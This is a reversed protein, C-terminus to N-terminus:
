SQRTKLHRGVHGVLIQEYDEIWAFHIRLFKDQGRGAGLKIHLPMEILQGTEDRFRRAEDYRRMTDVSESSCEVNRDNLTQVIQEVTVDGCHLEEGIRNLASLAELVRQPLAYRSEGASEFASNLFSLHDGRRAEAIQVAEAVTEPVRLEDTREREVETQQQELSRQAGEYLSRYRDREALADERYRREREVLRQLSKVQESSPRSAADQRLARLEAERIQDRVLHYAVAASNPVVMQGAQGVIEKLVEPLRRTLDSRLWFPHRGAPDAKSFGPQYIRVAGGYCSMKPEVLESLVRSAEADFRYVDAIGALRAQLADPDAITRRRADTSVAILPVERDARTLEGRVLQAVDTRKIRRARTQLPAGGRRCELKEVLDSVLGIRVGSHEGSDSDDTRVEAHLQVDDGTTSVQLEAAWSVNGRRVSWEFRFVAREGDDARYVTARGDDAPWTGRDEGAPPLATRVRLWEVAEAAVANLLAPGSSDTPEIQFQAAYRQPM